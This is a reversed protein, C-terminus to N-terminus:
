KKIEEEMTKTSTPNLVVLCLGTSLLADITNARYTGM